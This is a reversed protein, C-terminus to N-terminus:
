RTQENGADGHGRTETDGRRRTGADARESNMLVINYGSILVVALLCCGIYLLEQM